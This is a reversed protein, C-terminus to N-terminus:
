PEVGVALDFVQGTIGTSITRDPTTGGPGYVVVNGTNSNTLFQNGVFLSGDSAYALGTPTVLGDTLEASEDQYPPPYFRVADNCEDAVVIDNKRDLVLGQLFGGNLDNLALVTGDNGDHAFEVVFTQQGYIQAVFLNGAGDQAIGHPVYVDNYKIQSPKTKGPPFVAIGGETRGTLGGDSVFMTGRANVTGGFPLGVGKRYTRTPKGSMGPAYAHVLSQQSSKGSVGVYVNGDRDTWISSAEVGVDPVTRLVKPHKALADYLVVSGTQPSANSAVLVYLIEAKRKHASVPAGGPAPRSIRSRKPRLAAANCYAPLARSQATSGLDARAPFAGGSCAELLLAASVAAGALRPKV